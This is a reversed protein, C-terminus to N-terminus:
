APRPMKQAPKPRADATDRGSVAHMAKGDRGTPVVYLARKRCSGAIKGPPPYM